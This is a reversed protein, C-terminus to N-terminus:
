AVVWQGDRIFGHDGCEGGLGERLFGLPHRCLLSPSLTLPDPNDVTWVPRDEGHTHGAFTVAGGCWVGYQVLFHPQILGHKGLEPHDCTTFQFWHLNGLYQYKNFHGYPFADIQEQTLEPTAM